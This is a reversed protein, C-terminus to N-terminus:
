KFKNIQVINRINLIIFFYVNIKAIPTASVSVAQPEPDVV